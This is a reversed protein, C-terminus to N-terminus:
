CKKKEKQKKRPEFCEQTLINPRNGTDEFCQCSPYPNYGSGTVMVRYFHACKKCKLEPM